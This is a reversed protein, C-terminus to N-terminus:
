PRTASTHSLDHLRVDELGARKRIVIWQENLNGLRGSAASGTIVWPIGAIRPIAALMERATLSLAVWRAGTKRTVFDFSGRM